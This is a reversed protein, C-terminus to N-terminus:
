IVGRCFFPKNKPTYRITKIYEEYRNLYNIYYKEMGSVIKSINYESRIVDTRLSKNINIWYIVLDRIFSFAWSHYVQPADVFLGAEEGSLIKLNNKQRDDLRGGHRIECFPDRIINALEEFIKKKKDIDGITISNSDGLHNNIMEYITNMTAWGLLERDELKRSFLVLIGMLDDNKLAKKYIQTADFENHDHCTFKSRYGTNQDVPHIIAKAISSGKEDFIEYNEFYFEPYTGTVLAIIGKLIIKEQRHNPIDKRVLLGTDYVSTQPNIFKKFYQKFIDQSEIEQFVIKACVRMKM